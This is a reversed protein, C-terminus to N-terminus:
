QSMAPQPKLRAGGVKERLHLGALQHEDARKVFEEVIKGQGDTVRVVQGDQMQIVRDVYQTLRLDHTVMIGARNQEHIL